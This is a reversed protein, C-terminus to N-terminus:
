KREEKAFAESLIGNLIQRGIECDKCVHKTPIKNTEHMKRFRTAKKGNFVEMIGNEGVNGIINHGELDCCCPMADGNWLIGMYCWPYNCMDTRHQEKIMRQPLLDLNKLKLKNDHLADLIVFNVRHIWTNVFEDIEDHEQDSIVMNVTTGPYHNRGNKLETLRRMNKVVTDYNSGVRKEEHRKGIGDLSVHLRTIQNKILAIMIDDNMLMANTSVMVNYKREEYKPLYNLMEIFQPHLFPEGGLYLAIGTVTPIEQIEDIIQKYLNFDMFGTPRKSTRTNCIPCRLNCANTPEIGVSTLEAKM